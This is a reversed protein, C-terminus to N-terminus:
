GMRPQLIKVTFLLTRTETDLRYGRYRYPNINGINNQDTIVNGNADKVSIVNGMSDYEYATIGGNPAITKLLNQMGDYKYETVNGMPDKQKTINGLAKALRAARSAGGRCKQM